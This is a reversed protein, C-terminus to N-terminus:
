SRNPPIFKNAPIYYLGYKSMTDNVDKAWAVANFEDCLTKVSRFNTFVTAGAIDKTFGYPPTYGGDNYGIQSKLYGNRTHVIIFALGHGTGHETSREITIDFEYHVDQNSKKRGMGEAHFVGEELLATRILNGHSLKIFKRIPKTIEPLTGAKFEIHNTNDIAKYVHSM